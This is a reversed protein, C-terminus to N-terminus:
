CSKLFFGISPLNILLSFKGGKYITVLLPILLEEGYLGKEEINEINFLEKFSNNTSLHFQLVFNQIFESNKIAYQGLIPSFYSTLSEKHLPFLVRIQKQRQKDM